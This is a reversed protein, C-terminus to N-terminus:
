ALRRKHSQRKKMCSKGSKTQGSSSGSSSGYNPVSVPAQAKAPTYSTESTSSEPEDLDDSDTITGTTNTSPASSSSAGDWVAPGPLEVTKSYDYTYTNFGNLPSSSQTYLKDSTVGAPLATKGNGTVELQVCGVYIQAPNSHTASIENRWLYEGPALDAPIDLTWKSGDEIMKAMGWLGSGSKPHYVEPKAGM